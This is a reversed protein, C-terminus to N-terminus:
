GVHRGALAGAEDVHCRRVPLGVEDGELLGADVEEDIRDIELCPEGRLHGLNRPHVDLVRIVDEDVQKSFAVQEHVRPLDGVGVREAPARVCREDVLGDGGPVHPDLRELVPHGLEVLPDQPNGVVDALPPEAVPQAVGAVPRDAPVAEPSAADGYPLAVSAVFLHADPRTGFESFARPDEEVVEVLM